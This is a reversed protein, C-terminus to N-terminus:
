SIQYEISNEVENEFPNVAYKSYEERTVERITDCNKM